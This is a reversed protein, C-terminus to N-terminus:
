NSPVQEEITRLAKRVIERQDYDYRNITEFLNYTSLYQEENM